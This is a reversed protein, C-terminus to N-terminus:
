SFRAGWSELLGVRLSQTLEGKEIWGVSGGDLELGLDVGTSGSFEQLAEVIAQTEEFQRRDTEEDLEQGDADYAANLRHLLGVTRFGEEDTEDVFEPPGLLWDARAALDAAVQGLRKIDEEAYDSDVFALLPVVPHSSQADTM